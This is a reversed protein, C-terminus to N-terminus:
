GRSPSRWRSASRWPAAWSSSVWVRSSGYAAAAALRAKDAGSDNIKVLEDLRASAENFATLSAGRSAQRADEQKGERSLARIKRHEDLYKTWHGRFADYERREDASSILPQYTKDLTTMEGSAAEMRREFGEMESANTALIHQLEFRRFTNVKENLQGVTQISPLWSTAIEETASNIGAMQVIAFAGLGATLALVVTFSLLLKASIRMNRFWSM